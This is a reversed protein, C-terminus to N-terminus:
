LDGGGTLHWLPNVQPQNEREGVSKKGGRRGRTDEEKGTKTLSVGRKKEHKLLVSKLKKEKSSVLRNFSERGIDRKLTKGRKRWPCVGEKKERIYFAARKEGQGGGRSGGSEREFFQAPSGKGEPTGERTASRSRWAGGRLHNKVGAGGGRKKGLDAVVGGEEGV